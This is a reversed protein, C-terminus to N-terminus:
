KENPRCPLLFSLRLLWCKPVQRICLSQLVCGCAKKKKVGNKEGNQHKWARRTQEWVELERNRFRQPECSSSSSLAPTSPIATVAATAEAATTNSTPSVSSSPSSSSSSSSVTSQMTPVPSSSPRTSDLCLLSTNNALSNPETATVTSEWWDKEEGLSV